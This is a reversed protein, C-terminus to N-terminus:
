ADGHDDGGEGEQCLQEWLLAHMEANKGELEDEYGEIIAKLTYVAIDEIAFTEDLFAQLDTKFAEFNLIKPRGNETITQGDATKAHHSDHLQQEEEMVAKLKEAIAKTIRTRHVNRIGGAKLNYLFDHAAGLDKYTIELKM